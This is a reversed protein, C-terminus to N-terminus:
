WASPELSKGSLTQVSEELLIISREIFDPRHEQELITAKPSKEESIPQLEGPAGFCCDKSVMAVRVASHADKRGTRPVRRSTWAPGTMRSSLTNPLSARETHQSLGEGAEVNSLKIQSKFGAMNLVITGTSEARNKGRKGAEVRACHLSWSHRFRWDMRSSATVSKRPYRAM